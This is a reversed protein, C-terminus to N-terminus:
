YESMGASIDSIPSWCFDNSFSLLRPPRRVNLFWLWLEKKYAEVKNAYGGKSTLKFGSEEVVYEVQIDGPPPRKMQANNVNWRDAPAIHLWTTFPTPMSCIFIHDGIACVM